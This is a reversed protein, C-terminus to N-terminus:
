LAFLDLAVDNPYHTAHQFSHASYPETIDDQAFDFSGVSTYRTFM